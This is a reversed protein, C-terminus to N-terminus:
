GVVAPRCLGVASRSIMTRSPHQRRPHPCQSTQSKVALSRPGAGGRAGRILASTRACPTSPQARSGVRDTASTRSSTLWLVAAVRAHSSDAQPSRDPAPPATGADLWRSPGPIVVTSRHQDWSAKRM